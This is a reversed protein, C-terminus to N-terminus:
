LVIILENSMNKSKLHALFHLKFIYFINEKDTVSGFVSKWNNFLDIMFVVLMKM